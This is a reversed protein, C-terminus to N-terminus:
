NLATVKKIMYYVKYLDGWYKTSGITSAEFGGSCESAFREAEEQSGKYVGFIEEKDPNPADPNGLFTCKTILWLKEM